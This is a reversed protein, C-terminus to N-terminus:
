RRFNLLSFASSPEPVAVYSSPGVSAIQSTALNEPAFQFVAQIDVYVNSPTTITGISNPISITISMVPNTSDNSSLWVREFARAILTTRNTNSLYMIPTCPVPNGYTPDIYALQVSVPALVNVKPPTTAVVSLFLPSFVVRFRTLRCVRPTTNNIEALLNSPTFTVSKYNPTVPTEIAFNTLNTQFLRPAAFNNRRSNNRSRRKTNRSPM